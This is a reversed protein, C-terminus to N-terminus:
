GKKEKHCGGHMLAHVRCASYLNGYLGAGETYPERTTLVCLETNLPKKLNIKIGM